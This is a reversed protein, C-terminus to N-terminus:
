LLGESFPLHGKPLLLAAAGKVIRYATSNLQATKGNWTIVASLGRSRPSLAPMNLVAREYPHRQYQSSVTPEEPADEGSCKIKKWIAEGYLKPKECYPLHNGLTLIELALMSHTLAKALGAQSSTSPPFVNQRRIHLTALVDLPLLFTPSWRPVHAM